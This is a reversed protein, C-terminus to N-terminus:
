ALRNLLGDKAVLDKVTSLKIGIMPPDSDPTVIEYERYFLVIGDYAFYFRTENTVPPIRGIVSLENKEVYQAVMESLRTFRDSGSSGFCAGLKVESGSDCDFNATDVALLSGNAATFTLKFSLLGYRNFEVLFDVTGGKAECSAAFETFVSRISLNLLSMDDNTVYPYNVTNGGHTLTRTYITLPYRVSAQKLDIEEALIPRSPQGGPSSTNSDIACGSCVAIFVAALM